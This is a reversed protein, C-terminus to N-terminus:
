AIEMSTWMLGDQNSGNAKDVDQSESVRNLLLPRCESDTFFASFKDNATGVVKDFFTQSPRKRLGGVGGGPVELTSQGATPSPRSGQTLSSTGVHATTGASPQVVATFVPRVASVVVHAYRMVAPGIKQVISQIRTFFDETELQEPLAM